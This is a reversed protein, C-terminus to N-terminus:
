YDISSHDVSKANIYYLSLFDAFCIQDIIKYKAKKLDRNPQDLYCYLTNHQFLDTSDHPLEDTDTKKKYVEYRKEPM